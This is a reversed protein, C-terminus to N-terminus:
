VLAWKWNKTLLECNQIPHHPESSTEHLDTESLVWNRTLISKQEKWNFDAKECQWLQNVSFLVNYVSMLFSPLRAVNLRCVVWLVASKYCFCGACRLAVFLRSSGYLLAIKMKAGMNAPRTNGNNTKIYLPWEIVCPYTSGIWLSCRSNVKSYM